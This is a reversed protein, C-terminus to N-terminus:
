ESQAPFWSPPINPELDGYTTQIYNLQGQWYGVVGPVGWLLDRATVVSGWPMTISRNLDEDTLSSLNSILQEFCGSLAGAAAERTTPAPQPGGSRDPMQGTAIMHGLFAAFGSAKGAVELPSASTESPKYALREDPVKELGFVIRDRAMTVNNILAAVEATPM